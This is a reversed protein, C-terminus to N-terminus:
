PQAPMVIRRQQERWRQPTTHMRKNFLRYFHGLNTLGCELCIDLPSDDSCLLQQAAWSIRADNVVDTPTKGLWRRAERAVHEPSRGSLRSLAHTGEQLAAPQGLAAVAETLWAPGPAGQLTRHKRMLWLVNLLLRETAARTRSGSELEQIYLGLEILAASPLEMRKLASVAFPDAEEPCVRRRLEQWTEARFAVNVIRCLAHDTAFTHEDDAAVLTIVGPRLARRGQPTVEVGDGDECWFLELFDHCHLDYHNSGRFSTRAFHCYATRPLFTEVVLRHTM